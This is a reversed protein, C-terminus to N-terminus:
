FGIPCQQHECRRAAVNWNVRVLTLSSRSRCWPAAATWFIIASRYLLLFPIM